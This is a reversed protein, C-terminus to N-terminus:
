CKMMDNYTSDDSCHKEREESKVEEQADHCVRYLSDMCEKGIFQKGPMEGNANYIKKLNNLSPQSGGEAAIKWHRIGVEHNGSTYETCGINHRAFIEGRLAGIRYFLAARKKDVDLGNGGNYIDGINTCAEASGLEVAQIFCDLAKLYRYDKATGCKGDRYHEGM